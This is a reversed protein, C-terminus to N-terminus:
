SKQNQMWKRATTQESTEILEAVIKGVTSLLAVLGKNGCGGAGAVPTPSRGGFVSAARQCTDGVEWRQRGVDMEQGMGSIEFPFPSGRRLPCFPPLFHPLFHSPVVNPLVLSWALPLLQLIKVDM